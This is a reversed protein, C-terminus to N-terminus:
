GWEGVLEIELELSVGQLQYVTEQVHRILAYYNSATAEESINVIFNAHKQSVELGGMRLGKLGSAEILRGAYDGPPNKFISGLSAGPPQTRKRYENFEAMRQQIEEPNGPGLSFTALLVIYRKDVRSKLISSRYGYRLAERSYLQPGREAELVVVDQVCDSMDGGHAGANNVIAGGLTGPVGVAWEMGTFGHAACERAFRLLGTGSTASVNRGEHWNDFEIRAIRNVIVLGRVGRDSVLVNAGSGLLRLPIGDDWAAQAVMALHEIPEDPRTVYLWDAKGGLRAATYKALLQDQQLNPLNLAALHSM